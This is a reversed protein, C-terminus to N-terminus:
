QRRYYARYAEEMRDTEHRDLQGVDVQTLVGLCHATPLRLMDVAKRALERPTSRWKAVFLTVDAHGSLLVAEPAVLVAPTDIVIVDFREQAAKIMAGFSSGEFPQLPDATTAGAALFTFLESAPKQIFGDMDGEAV